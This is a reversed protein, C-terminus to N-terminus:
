VAAEALVEECFYRSLEPPTRLDVRRGLLASLERELRAMDLLSPTHAPDFEVLLDLDSDPQATGHLVSTFVALWRIHSRRCFAALQDLPCRGAVQGHEDRAGSWCGLPKSSTEFRRSM